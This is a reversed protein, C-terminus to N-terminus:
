FRFGKIIIHAAPKEISFGGKGTIEAAWANKASITIPKAETGVSTITINATTTYVGDALFIFDGPKAQNIANQLEAISAVTINAAFSKGSYFFIIALLFKKIM